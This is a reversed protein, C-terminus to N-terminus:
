LRCCLPLGLFAGAGRLVQPYSSVPSLALIPHVKVV